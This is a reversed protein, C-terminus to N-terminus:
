RGLFRRFRALATEINALDTAYSFRVHNPLGFASGPVLALAERELLEECFATSSRGDLVSSVDPFCYFAGKPEPVAFDLARLGNALVDRREQFTARMTDLEAPPGELAARYAAQSITNPAGTMQSNLRVVADVLDRPGAVYGIRYGTMAFAKSAGDVIVTRARADARVEVPSTNVVGDYVLARYIEDSILALDRELALDTVAEVESRTWVVGSPNNPSNFLLARTRPTLAARMAEIDPRCDPLCAVPVATAGTLKIIEFYSVWAPLLVLVEDGPELLALHAATLAHKASHCVAIEEPAYPVHRTASVHAALASRLEPAGGAATYRVNGSRVREVAAAQAAEPARFDPEGVAMSVVDRGAARMAKARADLALTVSLELCLARQTLRM